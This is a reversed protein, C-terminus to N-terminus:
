RLEREVKYAYILKSAGQPLKLSTGDQKLEFKLAVNAAGLGAGLEIPLAFASAVIAGEIAGKALSPLSVDVKMTSCLRSAWSESSVKELAVLSDSVRSIATTMARPLDASDVLSLYLADLEARLELLEAARRRKFELIDEFSVDDGPVPLARYLTTEIVRTQIREDDPIWVFDGQQALSWCGPEREENVRLAEL